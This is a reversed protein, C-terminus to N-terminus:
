KATVTKNLREVIDRTILGKGGLELHIKTSDRALEPDSVSDMIQADKEITQGEETIHDGSQDHVGNVGILGDIKKLQEEDRSTLQGIAPWNNVPLAKGIQRVALADLTPTWTSVSYIFVTLLVIGLLQLGILITIIVLTPLDIVPRLFISGPSSYISRASLFEENSATNVLIARNALYSTMKFAYEAVDTNNFTGIHSALISTLDLDLAELHPYSANSLAGRVNGAANYCRDLPQQSVFLNSAQSFPVSGHECVAAYAQVPTMATTNDSFFQVFSYNGFLVEASVMLPGPTSGHQDDFDNFPHGPSRGLSGPLFGFQESSTPDEESPRDCTDFGCYDTTEEEIYQPGPWKELLPGPLHGNFENPLEFYGRSTSATCHLTYNNTGSLSSVSSSASVDIFLEEVIDQRNRSPTFPYQSTNGPACVNLELGPRAVHTEFPNAGPCPSPFASKDIWECNISTNLRIAHERLVGTDLGSDVATVFFGPNDNVHSLPSYFFFNRGDLANGSFYDSNPNLPWMNPEPEVDSITTLRGLVDRLILDHQVYPLDAPEPDYGVLSSISSGYGASLPKDRSARMATAEFSVLGTMLPQLIAGLFVLLAGLWLFGSSKGTSGSHWLLPINSWGRDALAFLQQANLQQNEKRRMAHVVAAYALLASLVPVTFIGNFSNLVRAATVAAVNSSYVKGTQDSTARRSTVVLLVWPVILTPLYLILLCIPTKRRRLAPKEKAEKTDANPKPVNNHGGAAPRSMERSGTEM